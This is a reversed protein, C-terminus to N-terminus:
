PFTRVNATAEYLSGIVFNTIAYASLIIALGIVAATLTKKATEVGEENGGATMWKFGAYIILSVAIIGLLGLIVTIVRAALIRVDGSPLGSGAGCEAGLIDNADGCVALANLSFIFFGVFALLIFIYKNIKYFKAPKMFNM